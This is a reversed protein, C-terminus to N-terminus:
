AGRASASADRQSRRRKGGSVREVVRVERALTDLALDRYVSSGEAFHARLDSVDCIGADSIIQILDKMESDIALDHSSGGSASATRWGLMNSVDAATAGFGIRILHRCVASDAYRLAISLLGVSPKEELPISRTLANSGSGCFIEEISTCCTLSASDRCCIDSNNDESSVKSSSCNTARYQQDSKAPEAVHERAYKHSVCLFADIVAIVERPHDRQQNLPIDMLEGAVPAGDRDRYVRALLAFLPTYRASNNTGAVLGEASAEGFDLLAAHRRVFQAIACCPLIQCKCISCRM